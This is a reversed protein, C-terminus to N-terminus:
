HRRARDRGARNRGGDRATGRQRLRGDALGGAVQADVEGLDGGGPGGPLDGLLVEQGVHPLFFTGWGKGAQGQTFVQPHQLLWIEDPTAEDREATLRRMAELTPLYDVLGLHRVILDAAAM